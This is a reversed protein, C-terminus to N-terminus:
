KGERKATAEQALEEIVPAAMSAVAGAVPNIAATAAVGARVADDVLDATSGGELAARIGQVAAAAAPQFKAPLHETAFATMAEAVGNQFTARAADASNPACITSATGAACAKAVLVDAPEDPSAPVGSRNLDDAFREHLADLTAHLTAIAVAKVIDSVAM